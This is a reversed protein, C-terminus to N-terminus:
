PSSEAKAFVVEHVSWFRDRAAGELHSSMSELLVRSMEFHGVGGGAAGLVAHAEARLAVPARTTLEVSGADRDGVLALYAEVVGDIETPGAGLHASLGNM